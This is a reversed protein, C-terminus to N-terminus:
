RGDYTITWNMKQLDELTIDYRKLVLNNERIYDWGKEELVNGDFLFIMLTDSPIRHIFVSEYSSNFTSLAGDTVEFPLVKYFNPTPANRDKYANTNPYNYDQLTYLVKSTKNKLKINVHLNNCCTVVQFFIMSSIM